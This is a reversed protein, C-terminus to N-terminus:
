GGSTAAPAEGATSVRTSILRYRGTKAIARIAPEHRVGVGSV